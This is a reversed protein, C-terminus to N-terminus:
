VMKGSITVNLVGSGSANTYKCRIWPASTQTIDIYIPTGVSTSVTPSTVWVGGTYYTLMVPVWTGTVLVNGQSDQNYNNSIEVSFTGVPSSTWDFQYSLNDLFEIATISSTLVNTGTMVGNTIVRFQKLNSKRSSM